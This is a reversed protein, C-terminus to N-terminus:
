SRPVQSWPVTKDTRPEAPLGLMREALVNRAIESTGGGITTGRCALFLKVVDILGDHFNGGGVTDPRRMDYDSILAGAPGMLDLIFSYIRQNLEGIALKVIAGEPGPTGRKRMEAARYNTLRLTEAEIWLRILEDRRVPDDCRRERWVRVAHGIDGHGRREKAMGGVTVRENMLTSVAVRWGEGVPGVRSDDPIRVDNLFVENFEADGTLQRLPRVEVGPSRMDVIFYTLGKHKPQEPDTRALLLGWRAVHALTTWVKQGNVVWEDGDRVARTALAALDSGAGPESFLQCWIEECAFAPRLYRRQQADTGHALITPAAMGVGMMNTRVNSPVGAARLRQDVREQLKASLGLGGLGPPFHVWALGLDFQAAWVVTPDTTTPDHRSLLQDVRADVADQDRRAGTETTVTM